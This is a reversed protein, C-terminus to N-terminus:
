AKGKIREVSRATTLGLMAMTLAVLGPWDGSPLIPAGTPDLKWNWIIFDLLFQITPRGVVEYFLGFLCVWGIGPRWYRQIWDGKQDGKLLEVQGSDSAQLAGLVMATMQQTHARILAAVDAKIKEKAIANQQKEDTTTWNRDIAEGVSDIVDSTGSSFIGKVADFFSM